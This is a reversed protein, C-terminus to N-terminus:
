QIVNQILTDTFYCIDPNKNFYIGARVAGITGRIKMFLHLIKMEQDIASKLSNFQQQLQDSEGLKQAYIEILIFAVDMLIAQFRSDHLYKSVFKFLSVMSKGERGAVAARLSGRRILEQIVAVTLEPKREQIYKRLVCDLARSVQFTRLYHDYRPLKKHEDNVVTIDSDEPKYQNYVRYKYHLKNKKNMKFNHNQEEVSEKKNQIYLLGDVMGAAIVMDNPSVALSLVPSPYDLTHVVKYIGSEFVKVHKDLSGSLICGQDRAFSLCTVTKHHERLDCFMKGNLLDWIKISTGGASVVSTGSPFLLLSEVPYGHDFSFVCRNKRLDFVKVTHDYSGSVVVDQSLLSMGGARVYDKHEQICQLRSESPIDWLCVSMDDSFSVIQTESSGFFCRHVPGKHGKFIRLLSKTQIDFLRVDGEEDGAILLRGDRRFKGGFARQRFRSLTRNIQANMSSYIQIKSSSTVALNYPQEQSFDIYDIAGYDKIAVPSRFNKWYLTEATVKTKGRPKLEVDTRKFDTM